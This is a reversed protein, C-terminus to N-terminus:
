ERGQDKKRDDYSSDMVLVRVDHAMFHNALKNVREPTAGKQSIQKMINALDKDYLSAEIAKQMQDSRIRLAFNGGLNIVKAQASPQVSGRPAFAHLWGQSSTGTLKKLFDQAEPPNLRRPTEVLHVKRSAETIAKINSWHDKGLSDFVPKLIRENSILYNVPDPTQSIKEALVNALSQKGMEGGKAALGVLKEMEAPNKIASEVVANIDTTDTLKQLVGSSYTKREANIEANRKLLKEALSTPEQLEKKISPVKNLVEENASIFSKAKAPNIAGNVLVKKNFADFLGNRLVDTAHTNQGFMSLYDDMLNPNRLINDVIKHDKTVFGLGNKQALQGGLGREHLGIMVERHFKNANALQSSVEGYPGNEITKLVEDFKDKVGVLAKYKDYDQVTRTRDWLSYASSVEGRLQKYLGHFTRMPVTPSKNAITNLQNIVSSEENKLINYFNGSAQKIQDVTQRTSIKLGQADATEYVSNYNANTIKRDIAAQKDALNRIEAGTAQTPIREFKQGLAQLQSDIAASENNLRQVDKNVVGKAVEQYQPAGSPFAAEKKMSIAQQMNGIDTQERAMRAQDKAIVGRQLALLSDSESARAIGLKLGPIQQELEASRQMNGQAAPFEDLGQQIEKSALANGAERQAGPTMKQALGAAPKIAKQALHAALAPAGPGMLSFVFSGLQGGRDESFGLGKAISKGVAEGEVAGMGSSFSSAAEVLAAVLPKEAKLIVGASLPGGGALFRIGSGVLKAGPSPEGNPLKPIPADNVQFMRRGYEGAKPSIKDLAAFLPSDKSTLSDIKKALEDPYSRDSQLAPIFYKITKDILGAIHVPFKPFDRYFGQKMQDELYGGWPQGPYKEEAQQSGPAEFFKSSPALETKQQPYEPEKYNSATPQPAAAPTQTELAAGPQAERHFQDFPNAEPAATGPESPDQQQAVPIAGEGSFRGMAEKVYKQTIPGWGKTNPGAHYDAITKSLDGNYRQYAERLHLGAVTAAAEPSSYADIGYRKLFLKRTEPVIQYVTAAEKPSVQDANSKETHRIARMLGEPLGFRNALKGELTDYVSSKYSNTGSPSTGTSKTSNKKLEPHEALYQIAAEPAAQVNASQPSSTPGGPQQGGGGVRSQLQEGLYRDVAEWESNGSQKPESPSEKLYRNRPSGTVPDGGRAIIRKRWHEIAGKYEPQLYDNEFSDVMQAIQRREEDSGTGQFFRSTANLFRDVASGFGRADKYILNTAKLNDGYNTLAKQLLVKDSASNYNQVLQRIEHTQDIKNTLPTMDTEALKYNDDELKAIDAANMGNKNLLKQAEVDRKLSITEKMRTFARTQEQAELERQRILLDQKKIQMEMSDKAPLLRELIADRLQPSYQMGRFPSPENTEKEYQANAVDFSQQDFARTILSHGLEIQKLKTETMNKQAVAQDNIIKQQTTRLEQAKTLSSLGLQSLGNQMYVKGMQELQQAQQEIGYPLAGQNSQPPGQLPTITQGTFQGPQSQQGGQAAQQMMQIQQDQPQQQDQAQPQGQQQGGALSQLATAQAQQGMQQLQSSVLPQQQQLQQTQAQTQLQAQAAQQQMMQAIQQEAQRQRMLTQINTDRQYGQEVNQQFDVPTISSTQM